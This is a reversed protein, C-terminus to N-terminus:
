VDKYFGAEKLSPWGGTVTRYEGRVDDENRGIKMRHYHDGSFVYVRDESRPFPFIMDIKNTSLTMFPWGESISKPGDFIDTKTAELSFRVRCYSDGSFFYAEDPKGPVNLAGDIHNFHARHLAPWGKDISGSAIVNDDNRGPKYEIDAYKSGSFFFARNTHNPIPLVADVSEFGLDRLSSWLKTSRYTVEDDMENPAWKIIVYEGGKFFYSRTEGAIHLCAQGTM